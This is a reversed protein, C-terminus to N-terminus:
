CSATVTRRAARLRREARYLRRTYRHKAQRTEARALMHKLRAVNRSRRSRNGIAAFCGKTVVANSNNIRFSYTNGAGYSCGTAGAWKLVRLYFESAGPPTTWRFDAKGDRKIVELHWTDGKETDIEALTACRDDDTTNTVTVSMRKRGGVYFSFWDDDAPSEVAATYTQGGALPGFAQKATDNPEYSTAAFAAPPVVLAFICIVYILPAAVV